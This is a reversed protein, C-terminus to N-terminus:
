PVLAISFAGKNCSLFGDAPHQEELFLPMDPTINSFTRKVAMPNKAPYRIRTM